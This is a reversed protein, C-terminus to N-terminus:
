LENGYGVFKFRGEREVILGFLRVEFQEGEPAIRVRCESWIRNPGEVVPAEACEYGRYGLPQGAYRRFARTIGRSSHNTTQFWVVAPSLEYPPGTYVTHPYYLHIFEARDLVMDALAATDPEELAGAFREVLADRSTAGGDLETAEREVTAQFRRIEEEIPRVSDVVAARVEDPAAVADETSDCGALAALGFLVAVARRIM